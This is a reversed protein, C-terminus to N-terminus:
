ASGPSVRSAAPQGTEHAWDRADVLCQWRTNRSPDAVVSELLRQLIRGVIPGPEIGLERCLDDGNVALDALTLPSGRTLERQVRARLARISGDDAPLGSGVNDAERLRLLGDVQGAGVRQIFRRVAADSWTAEYQFMHRRILQVIPQAEARPFALTRLMREAIAAGAEDHGIFHGDQLTDPKGVDHLLAAMALRGDGPAIAAAADVTALTHDWCDGGLVKNQPLGVQRALEPLLYALQGTDQLLALGRSPRPVSLMRRLEEGVRESSVHQVLPASERMAALTGPEIQFALQAALRAARVLRLADEDFRLRPDGVTRLVGAELDAIGGVVDVLRLRAADEDNRSAEHGWALANVTFDRRALDQELSDSFTVRDPRRHDAYVHDRRFTTVEVSGESSRVLVTGFRNEYVSGPFIAVVRDPRADTAVDWDTAQRGALADRLSGGVVWAAHGREWLSRLLRMVHPPVLGAIRRGADDPM